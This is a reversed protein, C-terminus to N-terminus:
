AERAQGPTAHNLRVTALTSGGAGVIVAHCECPTEMDLTRDHSSTAPDVAYQLHPTPSATSEEDSSGGEDSTSEDAKKLAQPLQM